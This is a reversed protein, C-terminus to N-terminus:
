VGGQKTPPSHETDPGTGLCHLAALVDDLLSNPGRSPFGEEVAVQVERADYEWRRLIEIKNQTSVGSVNVVAMPSAFVNAPDLLAQNLQDQTM